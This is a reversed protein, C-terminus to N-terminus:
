FIMSSDFMIDGRVATWHFVSRSIGSLFEQRGLIEIVKEVPICKDNITYKTKGIAYQIRSIDAISYGMNKLIEKLLYNLTM